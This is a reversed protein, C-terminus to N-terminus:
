GKGPEDAKGNQALLHRYGGIFGGLDTASHPMWVVNENKAMQDLTEMYRIGVLYDAFDNQMVDKVLQLKRQEALALREIAGAEGEAELIYARQEGEATAIRADREGEARLVEARKFGEAETVRARREREAKMQQEMASLVDAPPIIDQVEVRNVKIGWSQAAAGITDVLSANIKERSTLTDDLDMEGIVNRLTTQTLTELAIPLNEIEYVADKPTTIQFYVVADVQIGVNDRTIVSQSPFDYVQERLDLNTITAVVFYKQGQDKITRRWPIQRPQDVVPIIINLGPELTKQYRGLREIMMVSQEPVIRIGKVVLTIVFLAIAAIIVMAATTM